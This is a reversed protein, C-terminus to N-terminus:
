DCRTVTFRVSNSQIGGVSVRLTHVGETGFVGAESIRGTADTAQWDGEWPEGNTTGHLRAPANAPARSLTVSWPSGLCSRPADLFLAPLVDTIKFVGESTAAYLVNPNGAALAMSRVQSPLGDNFPSWSAGADFSRYVGGDPRMVLYMANSDGSDVVISAVYHDKRGVFQRLGNSASSWTAGGDVSKLLGQFGPSPGGWRGTTGAYLTRPDRTDLVLATIGGVALGTPSWTEGGDSSKVVGQPGGLLWSGDPQYVTATEYGFAGGYVTRSDLPDVALVQLTASKYAWTAGRDTTKVFPAWTDGTLGDFNAVYFTAPDSPAHALSLIQEIGGIRASSPSWTAGADDSRFLRRQWFVASGSPRTGVHLTAPNTPDIAVQTVLSRALFGPPVRFDPVDAATLPKIFLTESWSGGGDVSRYLRDMVGAYLTANRKPDIAVVHVDRDELGGNVAQWDQTCPEDLIYHNKFCPEVAASPTAAAALCGIVALFAIRSGRNM